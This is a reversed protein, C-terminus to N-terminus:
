NKINKRKIRKKKIKKKQTKTKKNKSKKYKQTQNKKGGDFDSDMCEHESGDYYCELGPTNCEQPTLENCGGLHAKKRQLL